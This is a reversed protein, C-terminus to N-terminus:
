LSICYAYIIIVHLFYNICNISKIKHLIRRILAINEKIKGLTKINILKINVSFTKIILEHLNNTLRKKKSEVSVDRQILASEYKGKQVKLGVKTKIAKNVERAIREYSDIHRKEIEVRM